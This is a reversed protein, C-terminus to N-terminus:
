LGYLNIKGKIYVDYRLHIIYDYDIDEDILKDVMELKKKEDRERDVQRLHNLWQTRNM